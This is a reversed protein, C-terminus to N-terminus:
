DLKNKIEELIDLNYLNDFSKTTEDIRYIYGEENIKNLNDNFNVYNQKVIERKILSKTDYNENSYTKLHNVFNDFREKQYRNLVCPIEPQLSFEQYIQKSYFLKLIDQKEFYNFNYINGLGFIRNSDNIFGKNYCFEEILILDEKRLVYLSKLNIGKTITFFAVYDKDAIKVLSHNFYTTLMRVQKDKLNNLYKIDIDKIIEKSFFEESKINIISDAINKIILDANKTKLLVSIELDPNDLFKNLNFNSEHGVISTQEYNYNKVFSELMDEKRSKRTIRVSKVYNINTLNKLFEIM